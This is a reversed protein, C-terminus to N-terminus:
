KSTAIGFGIAVPLTPNVKRVTAIMSALDTNINQRVGTVSLSSVYYLFGTAKQAIKEIRNKSTPAILSIFALEFQQCVQSFEDKEEFPVDPLILGDIGVTAAKEIFRETGYSFVVNAYTMIVMPVSLEQRLEAVMQFIDDSTVQNKLARLNAAQIVAGEATPDSFPIGLEIIDAGNKALTRIINKTTDLNPDGCTIFPIFAKHNFANQIRQLGTQKTM